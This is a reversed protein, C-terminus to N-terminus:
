KKTKQAPAPAKAAGKQAQAPSPTLTANTFHYTILRCKSTLLIDGGERKPTGMDIGNVTVIRDLKRVQDLFQGVYHYPGHITIDIPIEAYFDKPIEPGPKFTLFELGAERGYDSISRLIDPIDQLDPLMVKLSAFTEEAAAYEREVEKIRRSDSKAKDLEARLSTVQQTMRQIEKSKPSFSVFYFLAIPLILLAACLAIQAKMDLPTIRQAIFGDINRTLQATQLM